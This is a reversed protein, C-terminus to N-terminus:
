LSLRLAFQIQRSTTSPSVYRGVGSNFGRGTFVVMSSANPTRYNVHNFLNFMETRFQLKWENFVTFERQLSIDMVVISPGYVTGRGVNGITGPEPITFACPDFFMDPEKLEAGPALFERGTIPDNCGISKGSRPNTSQGPVLNPRTAKFLYGPRTVNIRVTTPVSTRMSFIGGLRWNSFVGLVQSAAGSSLKMRPTNYFFSSTFRHRGDFDSPGRDLTRDLGYQQASASTGINSADDISKSLTYSARLTLARSLRTDATVLFSNYFSQADSSQMNIGSQFAPNIYQPTPNPCVDPNKPDFLGCPFFLSGDSRTVPQPFLNTELNRWLHNGRAGVYSVQVNTQSPLRHQISFEYRMASATIFDHYDLTQGQQPFGSGLAQAGALANPFTERADFNSNIAVRYFPGMNKQTDVAYGLQEDYFIGFGANVTTSRSGGPAWNIGVRPSINGLSPNHELLPGVTM